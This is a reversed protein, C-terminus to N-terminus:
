NSNFVTYLSHLSFLVMTIGWIVSYDVKRQDGKRKAVYARVFFAVALIPNLIAFLVAFNM